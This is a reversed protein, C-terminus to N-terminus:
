PASHPAPTPIDSQATKEGSTIGMELGDWLFDEVPEAFRLVACAIEVVQDPQNVVAEADDATGRGHGLHLAFPKADNLIFLGAAGEVVVRAGRQELRMGIQRDQVIGVGHRLCVVIYVRLQLRLGVVGHRRGRRRCHLHVDGLCM